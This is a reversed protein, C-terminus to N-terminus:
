LAEHIEEEAVPKKGKMQEIDRLIDDTEKESSNTATLEDAVKASAM